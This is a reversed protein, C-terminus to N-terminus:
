LLETGIGIQSSAQRIYGNEVPFAVNVEIRSQPGLKISVGAGLSYLITANAPNQNSLAGSDFFLHCSLLHAIRYGLTIGSEAALLCGGVDPNLNMDVAGQDFGRVSFPGGIRLQDDLAPSSGSLIGVRLRTLLFFRQLFNLHSLALVEFKM